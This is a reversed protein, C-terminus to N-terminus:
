SKNNIENSDNLWTDFERIPVLISKGVRKVTFENRKLLEYTQRRGIGLIRQIDSARYVSKL